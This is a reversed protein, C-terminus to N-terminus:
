KESIGELGRLLSQFDARGRLVELDREERLRKGDRFGKARARRLVSMALGLYRDREGKRMRGAAARAIDCAAGILESAALCEGLCHLCVFIHGRPNGGAQCYHGLAERLLQQRRSESGQGILLEAQIVLIDAVAAPDPVERRQRAALAEALLRDAEARKGRQALFLCFNGLLVTSKPHDLGHERAIALCDRYAKEAEDAKGTHQLTFALEHTVLAVYVHREGLVQRGLALSRKLCDEATEGKKMGLLLRAAPLERALLGRQFLNISEVLGKGGEVKRFTVMARQYHPLAKLYKKQLVYVAVLGARAVAVDRHGAGLRRLRLELAEKFLAEADELDSLDALLWGLNLLTVSLALPDAKARTRRIALAQRYLQEAAAWDGTQHNLWALSHLSAALDPHDKPLTKRRLDLAKVLLPKARKTLGLTCYVNGITDLLKAQTEPERALDEVVRKAGRDLIEVVSLNESARPKLAPIGGLGLPDAAEFMETLVQATRNARAAEKSARDAEAVALRSQKEAVIQQRRAEAALERAREGADVATARQREAQQWLLTVVVLGVLLTLGLALSLGAVVPNRQSWRWLRESRGVARAQIPKRERFRKLDDALHAASAYRRPPNKRLCKLCIM